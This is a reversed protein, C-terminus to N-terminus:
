KFIQSPPHVVRPPDISFSELHALVRRANRAYLTVGGPLNIETSGPHIITPVSLLHICICISNLTSEPEGPPSGEHKCPENVHALHVPYFTFLHRSPGSSSPPPLISISLFISPPPKREALIGILEV